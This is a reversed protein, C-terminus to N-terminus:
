LPDFAADNAGWQTRISNHNQSASFFYQQFDLPVHGLAGYSSVGTTDFGKLDIATTVTRKAHENM